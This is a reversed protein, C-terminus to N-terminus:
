DIIQLLQSVEKRPPASKGTDLPYGLAILNTVREEAPIPVYQRIKEEDFIGLIVSGIGKSHAALCFTQSAIGADFMEWRDEKSTSYSGDEEYGSVQKVVTVLVLTNCHLITKANFDFNLVCHGAIEKKIEPNKIMHYRVAQTNKWSPSFRSLDVLEKLVSSPIEKDTYKRVSRREKICQDILM